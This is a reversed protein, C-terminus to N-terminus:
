GFGANKKSMSRNALCVFLCTILCVLHCVYLHCNLVVPCAAVCASMNTASLCVHLLRSQAPCAVYENGEADQQSANGDADEQQNGQPRAQVLTGGLRGFVGPSQQQQSQEFPRPSQQQAQGFRASRAALAAPDALETSVVTQPTKPKQRAQQQRVAALRPQMQADAPPQQQQDQQQAPEQQKRKAARGFDGPKIASADAPAAFPNTGSAPSTGLGFAPVSHQSGFGGAAAPVKQNASGIAPTQAPQAITIWPKPQLGNSAPQNQNSPQSDRGGLRAFPSQGNAITSAASANSAGAGGFAGFGQGLQLSGGFAVQPSQVAGFGGSAAGFGATGLASAFPASSPTNSSQQGGAFPGELPKGSGFGGTAAAAFPASSQTFNGQQMGGFVTGTGQIAGFGGPAPSPNAATGGTFPASSPTSSSQGFANNASGLPSSFSHQGFGAAAQFGGAPQAPADSAATPQKAAARAGFTIKGNQPSASSNAAGFINSPQAQQSPQGFAPQGPQGLPQQCPQGSAPQGPQGFPAGGNFAM